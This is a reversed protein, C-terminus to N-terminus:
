IGPIKSGSDDDLELEPDLLDEPDEDLLEPEFDDPDEVLLLEPVLDDLEPVELDDLELEPVDFARM